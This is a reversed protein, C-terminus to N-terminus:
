AKDWEFGYQEKGELHVLLLVCDEDDSKKRRYSNQNMLKSLGGAFFPSRSERLKLGHGVM